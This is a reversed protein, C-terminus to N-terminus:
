AITDSQGGDLWFSCVIGELFCQMSGDFKAVIGRGM